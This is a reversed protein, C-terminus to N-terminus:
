PRGEVLRALNRVSRGFTWRLLPSYALLGIAGLVPPPMRLDEFWTFRTGGDLPDLRWEGTGRVLGRHEIAMSRPPDWGTIALEDTILSLGLVKTRVALRMGEGDPGEDLRRVWAVDPMWSAYGRWDALVAWVREPEAAVTREVTLNV